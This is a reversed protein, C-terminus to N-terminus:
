SVASMDSVVSPLKEREDDGREDEGDDDDYVGSSFENISSPIAM